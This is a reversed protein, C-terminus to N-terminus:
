DRGFLALQRDLSTNGDWSACEDGDAVCVAPFEWLGALLGVRPRQRVPVSAGCQAVLVVNRETRTTKKAPKTPYLM